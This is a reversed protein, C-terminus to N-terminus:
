FVENMLGQFTTPTNTLRFPKVLFEYQGHHTRFATKSVDEKKVRVLHYDLRLDDIKKFITAGQLEDLLEDIAIIFFKNKVTEKNLNM